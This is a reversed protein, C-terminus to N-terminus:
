IMVNWVCTALVCLCVCFHVCAKKTINSQSIHTALVSLPVVTAEGKFRSCKSLESNLSVAARRGPNVETGCSQAKVVELVGLNFLAMREYMEKGSLNAAPLTLEGQCNISLASSM